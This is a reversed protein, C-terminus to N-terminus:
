LLVYIVIQFRDISYNVLLIEYKWPLIINQERKQTYLCHFITDEICPLELVRLISPISYRLIQYVM